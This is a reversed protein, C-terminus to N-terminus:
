ATTPRVVRWTRGGDRTRYLPTWPDKAYGVRPTVFDLEWSAPIANLSIRLWTRGGDRTRYVAGPCNSPGGCPRAAVVWANRGLATVGLPRLPVALARWRAGGDRTVYLTGDRLAFGVRVGGFTVALSRMGRPTGTRVWTRGDDRSHYLRWRRGLAVAYLGGRSVRVLQSVSRAGPVRSRM